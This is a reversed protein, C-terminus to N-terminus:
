AGTAIAGPRREYFEGVSREFDRRIFDRMVAARDTGKAYVQAIRKSQLHLQQSLTLASGEAVYLVYRGNLPLYLHLDYPLASEAQFQELRLELYKGDTSTQISSLAQPSEFFALVIEVGRHSGSEMFRAAQEAWTKFEVRKSDVSFCEIEQLQFGLRDFLHRVELTVRQSAEDDLVKEAGMAALFYGSVNKSKVRVCKLKSTWKVPEKSAAGSAGFIQKMMQSLGQALAGEASDPLVPTKLTRKQRDLFGEFLPGTLPGMLATAKSRQALAELSEANQEESFDLLTVHYVQSLLSRVQNLNHHRAQLSILIYQPKLLVVDSLLQKFDSRIRVAWGKNAM